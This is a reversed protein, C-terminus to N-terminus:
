AADGITWRRRRPLFVFDTYRNGRVRLRYAHWHYDYSFKWDAQFVGVDVFYEGPSLEVDDLPLPGPPDRRPM